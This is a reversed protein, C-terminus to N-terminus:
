LGFDSYKYMKLEDVEPIFYFFGSIGFKILGMVFSVKWIGQGM